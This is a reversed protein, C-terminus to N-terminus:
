QYYLIPLIYALTIACLLSNTTRPLFSHVLAQLPGLTVPEAPIAGRLHRRTPRPTARATVAAGRRGQTEGCRSAGTRSAALLLQKQRPGNPAQYCFHNNRAKELSALTRTHASTCLVCCLPLGGGGLTDGSPCSTRCAAECTFRARDGRARTCTSLVPASRPESATLIEELSDRASLRKELYPSVRAERHPYADRETAPAPHTPECGADASFEGMPLSAKDAATSPASPFLLFQITRDVPAM